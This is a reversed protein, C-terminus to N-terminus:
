CYLRFIPVPETRGRIAVEGISELRYAAGLLAVTTGSILVESGHEKNLHELRAALNVADGHVTYNMREGSGVNGAIVVGTNIGIRTRLRVGAFSHEGLIRQMGLAAKVASDAHQPDEVPVNFAVLMADGQFQNVIGGYRTIPEIVAGFYANLMRVVHAPEMSQAIGTFSEIDSYLITATAHMPELRGQGAVIADAVSEPVYKGFVERIVALQQAVADRLRKKELTAEIRARLLTPNFPKPLYDEAGLQICRVVSELEDLASIVIVPLDILAGDTRLQELVQYGNLEPMMIDLLVLDFRRERIHELAERGNEATHVNTYGLKRLRRTLTFRNDDNDDVVLFLPERRRM